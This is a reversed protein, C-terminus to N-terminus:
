TLGPTSNCMYPRSTVARDQTLKLSICSPDIWRGALRGSDIGSLLSMSCSFPASPLKSCITHSQGHPPLGCTSRLIYWRYHRPERSKGTIDLNATYCISTSICLM